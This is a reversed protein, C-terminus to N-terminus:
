GTAPRTWQRASIDFTKILRAPSGGIMSYAPFSKTVTSNAGVVCHEGLTVGPLVAVRYGLFCNRGIHVPGKSELPQKMIPGALPDTGHNEDTIYISDSLVSGDGISIEDICTLFANRGIYVYAGIRISPLKDRTPVRLIEIHLGREIYAMAGIKLYSRGSLEWPRKVRAHRGVDVGYPKYFLATRITRLLSKLKEQV